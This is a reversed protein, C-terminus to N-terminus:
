KVIEIGYKKIKSHLNSPYVGLAVAAKTINGKSEKLKSCILKKEFEDRAKSLPLDLFDDMFSDKIATESISNIFDSLDIEDSPSVICIREIFNKLERVNGPWSHNNLLKLSSEKIKKETINDKNIKKLFYDALIPIDDIRDRLAPIEIPIVGLRFFLDERFTGNKIEDKINKNTASIIRIDVDILKDSGVRHFSQEQIARLVKAQATSSMDAIEDLFLTGGHAAEFKGVRDDVAGTFAGKTHGFLESEILNDPIAACNVEIFPKNNRKSNRFIERAVVEKGTGNEGLIMVRSDSQSIQQILEKVDKIGPSDGILESSIISTEKLIRGEQRSNYKDLADRSLTLLRTLDLPKEICDFAGKKIVQVAIDVNAHGSIVIVEPPNIEDKLNTVFELGGMKPLWLDLFILSFERTKLEEIGNEASDASYVTYGEDELISTLIDRIPAEDDIILINNM